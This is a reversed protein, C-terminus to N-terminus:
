TTRLARCGQVHTVAAGCIDCCSGDSVYGSLRELEIAAANLVSRLWFVDLVERGLRDSERKLVDATIEGVRFYQEDYGDREPM